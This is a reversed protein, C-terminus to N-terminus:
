ASQQLLAQVEDDAVLALLDHDLLHAYGMTTALDAHGMAKQVLAPSKGEALGKCFAGASASM